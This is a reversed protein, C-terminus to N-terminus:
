HSAANAIASCGADFTSGWRANADAPRVCRVQIAVGNRFYYYELYATKQKNEMATYRRGSVVPHEDDPHFDPLRRSKTIGDNVFQQFTRADGAHQTSVTIRALSGAPAGPDPVQFALFQPDGDRKEMLVTWADPAAFHVVGDGIQYDTARAPPLAAFSVALAAITMLTRSKMM